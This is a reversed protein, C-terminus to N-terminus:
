PKKQSSPASPFSTRFMEKENVIIKVQQIERQNVEINRARHEKRIRDPKRKLLCAVIENLTREPEVAKTSQFSSSVDRDQSSFGRVGFSRSHLVGSLEQEALDGRRRTPLQLSRRHATVIRIVGIRKKVDPRPGESGAPPQWQPERPKESLREEERVSELNPDVVAGLARVRGNERKLPM